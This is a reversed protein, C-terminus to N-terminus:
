GWPSVGRSNNKKNFRRSSGRLKKPPTRQKVQKSNQDKNEKREALSKQMDAMVQAYHDKGLKKAMVTSHFHALNDVIDNLPNGSHGKVWHTRILHDGESQLTDIKEWLDRHAIPKKAKTLWGDKKWFPLARVGKVVYESDSYINIISPKTAYSIANVAAMLEMRVNTTNAVGGGRCLNFEPSNSIVIFAWGGSGDGLCSGDTYINLIVRKTDEQKEM